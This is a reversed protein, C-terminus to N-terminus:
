EPEGAEDESACFLTYNRFVSYLLLLLERVSGIDRIHGQALEEGLEPMYVELYKELNQLHKGKRILFDM